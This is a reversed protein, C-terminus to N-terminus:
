DDSMLLYKSSIISGLIMGVGNAIADYMSAFRGAVLSQWIENFGGYIIGILIIAIITNTSLNKVANIALFALIFYEIIHLLKDISFLNIDPIARGPITSLILIIFLYGILIIRFINKNM